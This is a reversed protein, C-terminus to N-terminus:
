GVEKIKALAEPVLEPHDEILETLKAVGYESLFAKAEKRKGGQILDYFLGRLEEIMEDSSVPAEPAPKEEEPPNKKAKEEKPAKEAKEEFPVIEKEVAAKKKKKPEETKAVADQVEGVIAKGRATQGIYQDFEEMSDFTVTIKM